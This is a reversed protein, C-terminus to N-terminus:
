RAHNKLYLCKQAKGNKCFIRFNLTAAVKLSVFITQFNPHNSQLSVRHSLFKTLIARNLVTKLIYANKYKAIKSFIWFPRWKQSSLNKKFIPISSQLSVRSILMQTKCNKHFIQFNLIAAMKPSVLNKKFIPIAVRCLYWASWFNLWFREIECPKQSILM